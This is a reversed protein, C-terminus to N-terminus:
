WGLLKRCGKRDSAAGGCLKIHPLPLGLYTCPFSSIPCQFWQMANAVDIIECRIPCVVSKAQNVRLGSAMGFAM